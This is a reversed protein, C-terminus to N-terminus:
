LKISTGVQYDIYFFRVKKHGVINGPQSNSYDCGEVDCKHLLGKHVNDEHRKLNFSNKTSYKCETCSYLKPSAAEGKRKSGTEDGFINAIKERKVFKIKRVELKKGLERKERKQHKELRSTKSTKYDCNLCSFVQKATRLKVKVPEKVAQNKINVLKGAEREGRKIRHLKRQTRASEMRNRDREHKDKLLLSKLLFTETGLPDFNLKAEDAPQQPKFHYIGEKKKSLGGSDLSQIEKFGEEAEFNDLMLFISDDDREEKTKLVPGKEREFMDDIHAPKLNKQNETIFDKGNQNEPETKVKEAEGKANEDPHQKMEGPKMEVNIESKKANKGPDSLLKQRESALNSDNLVIGFKQLARNVGLLNSLCIGIEISDVRKKFEVEGKYLLAMCSRVLNAPFNPLLIVLQGEEGEEKEGSTFIEELMTSYLALVMKHAEVTEGRDCVLAVDCPGKYEGLIKGHWEWAIPDM